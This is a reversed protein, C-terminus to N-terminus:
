SWYIASTPLFISIMAYKAWSKRTVGRELKLVPPKILSLNFFFLADREWNARRSNRFKQRTRRTILVLSISGRLAILMNMRRHDSSRFKFKRHLVFMVRSISKGTQCLRQRSSSNKARKESLQWAHKRFATYVPIEQSCHVCNYYKQGSM